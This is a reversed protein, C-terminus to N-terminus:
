HAFPRYRVTVYLQKVVDDHDPMGTFPPRNILRVGTDLQLYRNVPIEFGLGAQVRGETIVHDRQDALQDPISRELVGGGELYFCALLTELM